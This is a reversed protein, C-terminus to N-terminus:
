LYYMQGDLYLSRTSAPLHKGLFLLEMREQHGSPNVYSLKWLRRSIAIFVLTDYILTALQMLFVIERVNLIESSCYEAPISIPQYFRSKTQFPLVTSLIPLALWLVFFITVIIRNRNYVARLRFFFLLATCAFAVSSSTTVIISSPICNRNQIGSM